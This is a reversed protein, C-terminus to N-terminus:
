VRKFRVKPNSYCFWCDDYGPVEVVEEAEKVGEDFPNPTCEPDTTAMLEQISMQSIPVIELAFLYRDDKAQMKKEASSLAIM